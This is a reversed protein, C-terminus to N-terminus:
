SNDQAPALTLGRGWYHRPVGGPGVPAGGHVARVRAGVGRVRADVDDDAVVADPLLQKLFAPPRLLPFKFTLYYAAHGVIIGLIELIISGKMLLNTLIIVWPLYVARFSTGFWFTEIRADKNLACWVYVVSMVMPSMLSPFGIQLALVVCCTWNFLLMLFYDAPKGLFVGYELCRSYQFMFYCNFIFLFGIEWVEKWM